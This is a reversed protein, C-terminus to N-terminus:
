SENAMDEWPKQLRRQIRRSLVGRAGPGVMQWHTDTSAYFGNNNCNPMMGLKMFLQDENIIYHEKFRMFVHRRMSIKGLWRFITM